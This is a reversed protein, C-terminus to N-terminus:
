KSVAPVFSNKLRSLASFYEVTSFIPALPGLMLWGWTCNFRHLRKLLVTADSLPLWFHYITEEGQGLMGVYVPFKFEADGPSPMQRWSFERFCRAVRLDATNLCWRVGALLGLVLMSVSLVGVVIAM